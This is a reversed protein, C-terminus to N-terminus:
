GYVHNTTLPRACHQTNQEITLPIIGNAQLSKGAPKALGDASNHPGDFHKLAFLKTSAHDMIPNSAYQRHSWIM